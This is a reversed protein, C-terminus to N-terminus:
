EKHGATAVVWSKPSFYKGAVRQVSRADVRGLRELLQQDYRVDRGLFENVGMYYAQNIRSLKASMLRGWFQNRATKVEDETPGGSILGEAQALL